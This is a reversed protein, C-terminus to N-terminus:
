MVSGGPYIKYSCIRWRNEIKSMKRTAENETLKATSTPKICGLNLPLLSFQIPTHMRRRRVTDEAQVYHRGTFERYPPRRKASISGEKVTGTHM